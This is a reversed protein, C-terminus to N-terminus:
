VLQKEKNEKNDKSDKRDKHDKGEKNDKSEKNDESSSAVVIEEWNGRKQLAHKIVEHHNGPYIIYKYM